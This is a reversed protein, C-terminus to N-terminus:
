PQHWWSLNLCYVLRAFCPSSSSIAIKGCSFCTERLERAVSIQLHDITIAPPARTSANASPSRSTSRAGANFPGSAINDLKRVVNAGGNGM